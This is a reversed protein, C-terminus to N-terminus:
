KPVLFQTGNLEFVIGEPTIDQVLLMEEIVDGVVFRIGNIIALRNKPEPDYIHVNVKIPPLIKRVSFPLQHVYIYDQKSITQKEKTQETQGTESKAEVLTQKEQTTTPKATSNEGSLLERIKAEAKTEAPKTNPEEKPQEAVQGRKLKQKILENDPAPLNEVGITEKKSELLVKASVPAEEADFLGEFMGQQWSWILTAALLIIIVTWIIWKKLNSRQSDNSFSFSNFSHKNKKSRNQDSKKLSDLISSM